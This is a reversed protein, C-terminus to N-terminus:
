RVKSWRGQPLSRRLKLNFPDTLLQKFGLSIRREGLKVGLIVTEVTEGPKFIEQPKRAKKAWSMESLHILGEVGPELEVFAGFDAVRTVTGSVRDGIKYREQVAGM